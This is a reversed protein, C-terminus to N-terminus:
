ADQPQEARAAALKPRHRARFFVKGGRKKKEEDPVSEATERHLIGVREKRSSQRGTAEEGKPRAPLRHPQPSGRPHEEQRQNGHGKEAGLGAIEGAPERPRVVHIVASAANERRVPPSAPPLRRLM